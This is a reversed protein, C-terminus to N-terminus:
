SVQMSHYTKHCSYKFIHGFFCNQLFLYFKKDEFFYGLDIMIQSALEHPDIISNYLDTKKRYEYISIYITDFLADRDFKFKNNRYFEYIFGKMDTLQSKDTIFDSGLLVNYAAEVKGMNFM